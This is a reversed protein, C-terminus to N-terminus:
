LGVTKLACLAVAREETDAWAEYNPNIVSPDFPYGCDAKYRPHDDGNLIIVVYEFREALRERVQKSAAPDTLPNWTLMRREGKPTQWYM